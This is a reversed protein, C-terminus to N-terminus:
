KLKPGLRRAAGVTEKSNSNGTSNFKFSVTPAARLSGPVVSIFVYAVTTEALHKYQVFTTSKIGMSSRAMGDCVQLAMSSLDYVYSGPPM